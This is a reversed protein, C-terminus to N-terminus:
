LIWLLPLFNGAERSNGMEDIQVTATKIKTKEFCIATLSITDDNVQTDYIEGSTSNM